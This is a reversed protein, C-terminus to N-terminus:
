GVCNIIDTDCNNPQNNFVINKDALNVTGSTFAIGGASSVASNQTVKCGSEISVSGADLSIGGGNRGHNQSVNSRSSMSLAGSKIAIGTMQNHSVDVHNLNLTGNQQVVLTGPITTILDTAGTVTLDQVTVTSGSVTMISYGRPDGYLITTGVGAGSITLNESIELNIDEFTGGCLVLTDGPSAQDIIAQLNLDPSLCEGSGLGGGGNNGGKGGGNNGGGNNSGGNNNGNQARRKRRRQAAHRRVRDLPRDASVDAEGMTALLGALPLGVLLRLIRRRSENGHHLRVLTDFRSPDM